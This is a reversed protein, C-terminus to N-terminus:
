EEFFVAFKEDTMEKANEKIKKQWKKPMSKFINIISAEEDKEVLAKLVREADQIDKAIKDKSRRKGAILLKHLAFSAPHPIVVKIGKNEVTITNKDIIDLYRLAQANFALQPLDYPRAYEGRTQPVLFEIILQPHELRMYGEMGTFGTIFGLDRLLEAVDVTKTIKQPKPILFDIDRTKLVPSYKMGSFYDRYFLTCWSGVLVIHKLIGSKSLRRLVEICLDHQEKEV